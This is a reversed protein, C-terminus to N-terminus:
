EDFHPEAIELEDEGYLDIWEEYSMDEKIKMDDRPQTIPQSLSVNM